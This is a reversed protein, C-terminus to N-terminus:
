GQKVFRSFVFFLNHVPCRNQNATKDFLFYFRGCKEQRASIKVRFFTRKLMVPNLPPFTTWYFSFARILVRGVQEERVAIVSAMNSSGSVPLKLGASLRVVGKPFCSSASFVSDLLVGSKSRNFTLDRWGDVFGWLKLELCRFAARSLGSTAAAQAVLPCCMAGWHKLKSSLKIEQLHSM